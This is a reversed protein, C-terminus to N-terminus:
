DYLCTLGVVPIVAGLLGVVFWRESDFGFPNWPEGTFLWTLMAAVLLFSMSVFFLVVPSILAILLAILAKDRM